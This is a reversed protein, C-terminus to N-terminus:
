AGCRECAQGPAKAAGCNPCTLRERLAAIEREIEDDDDSDRLADLRRLASLAEAEYEARLTVFDAESLKGVAREGELDVLATLAARKRADAREFEETTMPADFRPGRRTPALVYALALCALVGVFVAAIM